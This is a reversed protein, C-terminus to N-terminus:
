LKLLAFFESRLAGVREFLGRLSSTTTPVGPTAVGRCAMCTHEAKLVVAVGNCDAYSHLLDAIRDGIAEQLSPRETGVADVLRTFKSLGILHKRPIYGIAARGLAPLLHHECLMRFPINQQVLLSNHGKAEFRPGLVDGVNKIPNAYELLFSAVRRPTEKTSDDIELGMEYMLTRVARHMAQEKTTDGLRSM